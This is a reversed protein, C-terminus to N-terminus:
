LEQRAQLGLAELRNPPLSELALKFGIGDRSLMRRKDIEQAGATHAVRDDTADRGVNAAEVGGAIEALSAEVDAKDFVGAGADVQWRSIQELALGLSF